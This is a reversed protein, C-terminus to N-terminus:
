TSTKLKWLFQKGQTYAFPVYTRFNPSTHGLGQEKDKEYRLDWRPRKNRLLRPENWAKPPLRTNDILLDNVRRNNAM